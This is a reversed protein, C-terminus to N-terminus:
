RSKFVMLRAALYSYVVYATVSCLQAIFPNYRGLLLSLVVINLLYGSILTLLYRGLGRRTPPTRFTKKAHVYYGICGGVFFGLTNALYPRGIIAQFLLIASFGVLTNLGGWVGFRLATLSEKQLWPLHSRM